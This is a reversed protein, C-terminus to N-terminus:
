KINFLLCARTAGDAPSEVRCGFSKVPTRSSGAGDDQVCVRVSGDDPVHSTVTIGGTDSIADAADLVLTLLVDELEGPDCTVVPATETLEIRLTIREGCIRRFLDELSRILSNVEVATSGGPERRALRQLTRNLEGSRQASRMASAIFRPTRDLSNTEILKEITSLSGVITQLANNMDHAIGRALRGLVRWRLIQRESERDEEAM